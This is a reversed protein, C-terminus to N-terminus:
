ASPEDVHLTLYFPVQPKLFHKHLKVRKEVWEPRLSYFAPSSFTLQPYMLGLTAIQTSMGLSALTLITLLTVACACLETIAM